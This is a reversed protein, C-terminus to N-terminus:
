INLKSIKELEIPFKNPIDNMSSNAVILTTRAANTFSLPSIKRFSSRTDVNPTTPKKEIALKTIIPIRPSAIQDM